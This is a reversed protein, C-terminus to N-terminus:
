PCKSGPRRGTRHHYRSQWRVWAHCWRRRRAPEREQQDRCEEQEADRGGGWGPRCQVWAESERLATAVAAAFAAVAATLAAVAAALTAVAAALTAVATA